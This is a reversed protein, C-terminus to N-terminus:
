STALYVNEVQRVKKDFRDRSPACGNMSFSSFKADSYLELTKRHFSPCRVLVKRKFPSLPRDLGGCVM